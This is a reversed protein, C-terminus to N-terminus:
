KDEIAKFVAKTLYATTYFHYLFNYCGEGSPYIKLPLVPSKEDGQIEELELFSQDYM